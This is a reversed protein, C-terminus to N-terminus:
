PRGGAAVLEARCLTVLAARGFGGGFLLLRAGEERELLVLAQGLDRGATALDGARRAMLGLHLRPMAFAPDLYAAVQDHERADDADGAGERCLALLYHAGAHLEDHALLAACATEAVALEGRQVLLAARLLLVEAEDPGPTKLAGLQALAEDFREEQMLGLARDLEPAKPRPTETRAPFAPRPAVETLARIRQAADEVVQVWSSDSPPAPPPDRRPPPPGPRPACGDRRQYYFTGHTHLLHFDQSLGRLTEAHGLFLYGSPALARTLRAVLSRMARPGFYMLVNRCFIVDFGESEWAQAEDAALNAEGFRVAARIAPDLVYESGERRFWRALMSAPLERLSWASYRARAAKELAEPNLDFARISVERGALLPLDQVLMALSYPEEGSACALSAMRLIRTRPEGAVWEALVDRLAEFQEANRFFYTEGVTLGAALAALEAREVSVAELGDLYRSERCGLARSRRELVEALLADKSADFSLGVRDEVLRRFRDLGSSAASETM